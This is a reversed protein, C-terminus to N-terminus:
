SSAFVAEPLIQPPLFCISCFRYGCLDPQVHTSCMSLFSLQTSGGLSGLRTVTDSLFSNFNQMPAPSKACFQQKEPPARNETDKRARQDFSCFTPFLVSNPRKEQPRKPILKRVSKPPCTNIKYQKLEGTTTPSMVHCRLASDLIPRHSTTDNQSSILQFRGSSNLNLNTTSNTEWKVLSQKWVNENRQPIFEADHWWLVGSFTDVQKSTRVVGSSYYLVYRYWWLQENSAYHQQYNKFAQSMARYGSKNDFVATM